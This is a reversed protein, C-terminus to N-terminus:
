EYKERVGFTVSVNRPIAREDTEIRINEGRSLLPEGTRYAALKLERVDWVGDVALCSAIIKSYLVDEAIKLSAIYGRVSAEVDRLIRGPDSPAEIIVTMSVDIHVIKPRLFEVRIGAARTEDIVRRIESEDGGDVVVRVIGPVGGPMEDILISNVGKVSKLASDLSSPTAKAAFELAHRARERLEEDTEAESGNSIDGKNIVYEVGVVPQPMITIAGAPVNGKKGPVTCVVSVDCEWRGGEAPLLVGDETTLFVKADEPTTSVTSVKTNKPIRIQQFATYDIKFVTRPDPKRGGSRWTLRRGSLGYESPTFVTAQGGSIGEVKNIEKVLVNKMEYSESGDYLHVEGAVEIKEPESSRGFTVRGSSPRPPRRTIGLLSVTMDLAEGTATELFGARYAADLQEYLFEIERSIGEVLTRLVSGTSTDTLGGPRAYRYTVTFTTGEDPSEGGAVWEVSNGSLRCDKTSSFEKERRRSIGSIKIIKTVPANTLRYAARGGEYKFAESAEVGTIRALVDETIQDYGKVRFPM